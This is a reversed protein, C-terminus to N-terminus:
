ARAHRRDPPAPAGDATVRVIDTMSLVGIPREVGAVRETVVVRHIRLVRLLDVALALPAQAPVTAVPTSMLHRAALGCWFRRYPDVCASTVLDSRSIIGVAVGDRMVVVASVDATHMTAAVEDLQTEPTCSIVGPHMCDRVTMEPM